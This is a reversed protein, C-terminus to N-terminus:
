FEAVSQLAGQPQALFGLSGRSIEKSHTDGNDDTVHGFCMCILAEKVQSALTCDHTLM